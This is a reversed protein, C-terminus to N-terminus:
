RSTLGLVARATEAHPGDPHRKLYDQPSIKKAWVVPEDSEADEEASEAEGEVEPPPIAPAPAPPPQRPKSALKLPHHEVAAKAAALHPVPDPQSPPPAGTGGVRAGEQLEYDGTALMERADVPWRELLQGTRKHSLIVKGPTSPEAM